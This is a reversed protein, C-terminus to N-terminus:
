PATTFSRISSVTHIVDGQSIYGTAGAAADINSFPGHSQVQWSFSASKPLGLGLATLDPITGSNGGSIVLYYTGGPGLLALVYIASSVPTWSFPTTTTVGTAADVPLSLATPDPITLTIGTTGPAIGTKTVSSQGFGVGAALATVSLTTGIITPVVYTFASATGFETGLSMTGNNPFAMSLSKNELALAAPVSVTGSINQTSLATMAINQGAFAGGATIAVGTKEGFGLFTTPMGAANKDWQLARLITTITAAGSWASTMSYTGTTVNPTANATVEGSSINVSSVRTAPEPYGGGGSITGSVTATNPLVASARINVLTPDSRSLGRYTIGIQSGVVTVDYPVTVDTVAFNGNADTITAPRGTIVVPANAIPLKISNIVKGTVTISTPVGTSSSSDSKCGPFTALLFAGTGLVSLLVAPRTHPM